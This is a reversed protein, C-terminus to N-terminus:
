SLNWQSTGGATFMRHMSIILRNRLRQVRSSLTM